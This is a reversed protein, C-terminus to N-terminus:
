DKGKEKPKKDGLYTGAQDKERTETNLKMHYNTNQHNINWKAKQQILM